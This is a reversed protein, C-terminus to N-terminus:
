EINNLIKIIDKTIDYKSNAIFINKKEIIMAISNDEMYKKVIPTINNFFIKLEKDRISKFEQTKKKKDSRFLSIKERLKEVKNQLENESIINKVRNIENELEKLENENKKLADINLNNLSELKQIIIKGTKSNNLIFDIDIYYIKENANVTTFNFFFIFFFLIRSM